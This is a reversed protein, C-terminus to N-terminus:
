VSWWRLREFPLCCSHRWCNQWCVFPFAPAPLMLLTSTWENSYGPRGGLDIGMHHHPKAPRVVHVDAVAGGVGCLNVALDGVHDAAADVAHDDVPVARVVVLVVGRLSTMASASLCGPKVKAMMISWPAILHSEQEPQVGCCASTLSQLVDLLFIEKAPM